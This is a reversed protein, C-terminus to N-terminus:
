DDNVSFIERDGPKEQAEERKRTEEPPKRYPTEGKM